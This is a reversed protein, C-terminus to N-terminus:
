GPLTAARLIMTVLSSLSELGPIPIMQDIGVVRM